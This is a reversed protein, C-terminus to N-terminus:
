GSTRKGTAKGGVAEWAQPTIEFGLSEWLKLLTDEPANAPAKWHRTAIITEANRANLQDTSAKWTSVGNAVAAAEDFTDQNMELLAHAPRTAVTVWEGTKTEKPRWADNPGGHADRKPYPARLPRVWRLVELIEAVSDDLPEQGDFAPASSFIVRFPRGDETVVSFFRYLAKARKLRKRIKGWECREAKLLAADDEAKTPVPLDHRYILGGAELHERFVERCFRFLSRLKYVRNAENQWTNSVVLHSVGRRPDDRRLMGLERMAPRIAKGHEDRPNPFLGELEKREKASWPADDGLEGEGDQPAGEYLDQFGEPEEVESASTGLETLPGTVLSPVIAPAPRPSAHGIAWDILQRLHDEGYKDALGNVQAAALLPGYINPDGAWKANALGALRMAAKLLSPYRQGKGASIASVAACEREIAAAVYPAFSGRVVGDVAPKFATPGEPRKPTHKEILQRVVGLPFLNTSM